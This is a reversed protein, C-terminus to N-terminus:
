EKYIWYRQIMGSKTLGVTDLVENELIGHNNVITKRSTINDVDCCILVKDDCKELLLKLM